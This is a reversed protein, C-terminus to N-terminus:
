NIKSIRWKKRLDLLKLQNKSITCRYRSIKRSYLRYSNGKEYFIINDRLFALVDLHHESSGQAKKCFEKFSIYINGLFENIKQKLQLIFAFVIMLVFVLAQIKKSDRILFKEASLNQKEARYFNETEWRKKYYFSHKWAKQPTNTKLDTLIVLPEKYEYSHVFIAYLPIKKLKHLYM